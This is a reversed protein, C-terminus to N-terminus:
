DRRDSSRGLVTIFGSRSWWGRGGLFRSIAHVRDDRKEWDFDESLRNGFKKYVLDTITGITGSGIDEYFGNKRCIKVIERELENDSMKRRFRDYLYFGLTTATVALTLLTAIGVVMDWM